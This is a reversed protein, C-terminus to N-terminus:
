VPEGCNECFKKFDRLQGLALVTIKGIKPGRRIIAMGNYKGCYYWPRSNKVKFNIIWDGKKVESIRMYGKEVNEHM